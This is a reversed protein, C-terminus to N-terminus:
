QWGWATHGTGSPRDPVSIEINKSCSLLHAGQLSPGYHFVFQQQFLASSPITVAHALREKERHRAPKCGFSLLEDNVPERATRESESAEFIDHAM